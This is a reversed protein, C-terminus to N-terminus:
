QQLDHKALMTKWHEEFEDVTFYWYLAKRFDELFKKDKVHDAANKPLHWACLRHTADSFVQRIAERISTDGDTIVLKPQKGSMAELFTELLWVYTDITEDILLACGFIVTQAHHNTGFFVVLPHKYKISGHTSDFALVDVFCQYDARSVGDAWFINKLRNDESTTYKSYFLPNAGAKATLYTLADRADGGKIREHRGYAHLSDAQAKDGDSITRYANILPVYISPTLENEVFSAVRWECRKHDYRIRFKTRCNTSSLGRPERQRLM